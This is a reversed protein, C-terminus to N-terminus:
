GLIVRFDYLKFRYLNALFELEYMQIPCDEYLEECKVTKLDPLIV